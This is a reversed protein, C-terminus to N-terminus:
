MADLDSFKKAAEFEDLFMIANVATADKFEGWKVVDVSKVDFKWYDNNIQKHISSLHVNLLSGLNVSASVPKYDTNFYKKVDAVSGDAYLGLILVSLNNKFLLKLSFLHGSVESIKCIHRTLSIDMIIAVGSGLHGSDLSFTFVETSTSFNLTTVTKGSTAKSLSEGMVIDAASMWSNRGVIKAWSVGGFAVPCAILASHKAYITALRSKDLDSFPRRSHKRSSINEGVACGLSTHGLKECKACKSFGLFSWCMNVNRLVPTTRMVANLYDASDFCVVVCRARAYTVSYCDITYTKGGVSGIYNWIDHATTGM